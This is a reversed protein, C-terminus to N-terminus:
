NQGGKYYTSLPNSTSNNNGTLDFFNSDAQYQRLAKVLSATQIHVKDEWTVSSLGIFVGTNRGRLMQIKGGINKVEDAEREFFGSEVQGTFTNIQNPVVPAIFLPDKVIWKASQKSPFMVNALQALLTNGQFRNGKIQQEIAAKQPNSDTGPQVAYVTVYSVPGEKILEVIYYPKQQVWLVGKKIYTLSDTNPAILNEDM